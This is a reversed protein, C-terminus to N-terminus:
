KQKESGYLYTDHNISGDSPIEAWVEDPIVEGRHRVGSILSELSTDRNQEKRLHEAIRLVAKQQEEPLIKVIDFITEAVTTQM